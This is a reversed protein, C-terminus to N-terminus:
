APAPLEPNLRRGRWPLAKYRLPLLPTAPATIVRQAGPYFWATLSLPEVTVVFLEGGSIRQLDGWVQEVDDVYELTCSVFVVASDDALEALVAEAPGTTATPCGPCGELDVCLDGCGYDPGLIGNVAGGAPAGLVVLPRGLERARLMAREYTQRRRVRRPGLALYLEWLAIAGAFLGLGRLFM